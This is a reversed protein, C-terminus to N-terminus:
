PAGRTTSRKVTALAVITDAITAGAAQAQAPTTVTATVPVSVHFTQTVTTAAGSAGAYAPQAVYNGTGALAAAADRAIANAEAVVNAHWGLLGKYFGEGLSAGAATAASLQDSTMGSLESVISAIKAAIDSLVDLSTQLATLSTADVGQLAYALWGVMKRLADGLEVAKLSVWGAGWIGDQVAQETMGTLDNIVGVVNGVITSVNSTLTTFADSVIVGALATQLSQVMSVAAAALEPAKTAAYKMGAVAADIGATTMDAFSGLISAVTGAVNAANGANGSEADTVILKGLQTRFDKVMGAVAAAITGAQARAAAVGAMAAAVTEPTLEVFATFISAMSGAMDAASSLRGANAGKKGLNIKKLESLMADSMAKVLAAVKKAWGKAAAITPLGQAGLTTIDAGIGLASDLVSLISGAVDAAAQLAEASGKKMGHALGKILRLGVDYLPGESFHIRGGLSLVNAAIDRLSQYVAGAASVIGNKLGSILAKGVGVLWGAAGAFFSNIKGPIGKVYGAVAGWLSKIGSWLGRMIAAGAAAMLGPTAKLGAVILKGLAAMALVAARGAALIVKNLGSVATVVITKAHNWADKWDGRLLAAVLKTVEAVVKIFTKTATLAADFAAKAIPGITSWHARFFSVVASAATVLSTFVAKAVQVEAKLYPGMASWLESLAPGLTAAVWKAGAVLANWLQKALPVVFNYAATVGAVLGSWVTKVANRFTESHKWALAFAAGVAVIGAVVLGIPGLAAAIGAGLAGVGGVSFASGLAGIVSAATSIIPILIGVVTAIKGVIFLVPGAAAAALALKVIFEQTSPSLRGFADAVKGLGDAIRSAIPLFINGLKIADASIKAIFSHWKASADEAQARIAEGFKGSNGVIQAQTRVLDKYGQVLAMITGGSRAGGFAASLVQSADVKSLGELHQKLLGIAEVIGGQRLAVALDKSGIGIGKLASVAKSTPAGLLSIAMRLRTAAATAPVGQSTMTAIASGLSVLSVGFTKATTAVGTGLSAVFDAMRMNGAGVIANIIGVAKGFNQAGSIGSKFAGAVANVTDELASQGVSALHEAAALAKMAAANGMGVSKLHYLGAALEQPGHQSHMALELVSATLSKVAAASAGAQTHILTMSEQFKAAMVGTAVGIAVVPLTVYKSLSKGVSAAGSGISAMKASGSRVAAGAETFGAAVGKADAVIRVVVAGADFM